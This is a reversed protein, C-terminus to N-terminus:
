LTQAISMVTTIPAAPNPMDDKIESGKVIKINPSIQDNNIGPCSDDPSFFCFCKGTRAMM